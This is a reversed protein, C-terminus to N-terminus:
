TRPAGKGRTRLIARAVIPKAWQPTRPLPCVYAVKGRVLHLVLKPEPAAGAAPDAEDSNDYLRLETLRPLLRVLNLRSQDYRERIKEEPIDHGGRRVRSRVRAVHLDANRLGVYWMRVELGAALAAELLRTITQGGLTTELAFDFREAIARELLRRGEHWAASNAADLDAGPNAALIARMAEDPNFYDAGRKRFMAGAISSKGAGNAGALVYIAPASRAEAV